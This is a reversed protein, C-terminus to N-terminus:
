QPGPHRLRPRLFNPSCAKKIEPNTRVTESTAACYTDLVSSMEDYRHLTNLCDLLLNYAYIAVASSPHKDVVERFGNTAREFDHWKYFYRARLFRARALDSPCHATAIFADMAAATPRANTPLATQKPDKDWEYSAPPPFESMRLNSLREKEDVCKDARAVVAVCFFVLAAVVRLM